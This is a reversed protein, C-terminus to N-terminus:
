RRHQPGAPSRPHVPAPLRVTRQIAVLRYHLPRRVALFAGGARLRAAVLCCRGDSLGGAASGVSAECATRERAAVTTAGGTGRWLPGAPFAAAIDFHTRDGSM